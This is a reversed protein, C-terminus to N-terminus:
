FFRIFHVRYCSFIVLIQLCLGIKFQKVIKSFKSFNRKFFYDILQKMSKKQIKRRNEHNKSRFTTVGFKFLWNKLQLM